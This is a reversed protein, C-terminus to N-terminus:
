LKMHFMKTTTFICGSIASLSSLEKEHEGIQRAVEHCTPEQEDASQGESTFTKVARPISYQCDWMKYM